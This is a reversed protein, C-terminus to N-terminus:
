DWWLTVNKTRTVEKVLERMNSYVQETIDGCLDQLEEGFERVNQPLREMKFSLSNRNAQFITIGFRKEWDNLCELINYNSVYEDGETQSFKIIDFHNNTKLITITDIPIGIESSDDSVFAHYGLKKLKHFKDVIGYLDIDSNAGKSMVAKNSVGVKLNNYDYVPVRYIDSLTASKFYKLVEVNFKTSKAIALERKTLEM